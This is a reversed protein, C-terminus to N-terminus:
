ESNKFWLSQKTSSAEFTDSGAACRAPFFSLPSLQRDKEVLQATSLSVDCTEKQFLAVPALRLIVAFADGSMRGDAQQPYCVSMASTSDDPLTTKQQLCGHSPHCIQAM